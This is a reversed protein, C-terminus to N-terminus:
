WASGLVSVAGSGFYDADATYLATPISEQFFRKQVDFTDQIKDTRSMLSERKFALHQRSLGIIGGALLGCTMVLVVVMGPTTLVVRPLWVGIVRQSIRLPEPKDAAVDDIGANSHKDGAAPFSESVAHTSMGTGSAGGGFGGISSSTVPAAAAASPTIPSVVSVEGAVDSQATAHAGNPVGSSALLSRPRRCCCGDSVGALQRRGDLTVCAVFFTVQFFFDFFVGLTAYVAFAQVAPLVTNGEVGFAVLSTLSTTLIAAGSYGVASSVRKVLQQLPVKSSEVSELIVFADDVGVGM